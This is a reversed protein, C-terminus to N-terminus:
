PPSLHLHPRNFNTVKSSFRV